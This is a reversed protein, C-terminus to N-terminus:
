CQNTNNGVITEAIALRQLGIHKAGLANCALSASKAIQMRALELKSQRHISLAGWIRSAFDRVLWQLTDYSCIKWGLSWLRFNQMVNTQHQELTVTVVRSPVYWQNQLTLAAQYFDFIANMVFEFKTHLKWVRWEQTRCQQCVQKAWDHNMNLLESM